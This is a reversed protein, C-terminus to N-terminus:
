AVPARGPARLALQAVLPVGVALVLAAAAFAAGAGARDYLAGGLVTGAAGGLGLTTSTLLAQATAGLGEPALRRALAVGSVWMVAYAPGHALQLAIVLSPAQVLALGLSRVGYLVYAAVFLRQAGFRRVLRGGLAMFPVESVVAVLMAVGVLRRAGLDDLRLPLYTVVMVLGAGGLFATGLLSWMRRDRVLIAAQRGFSAGVVRRGVPVRAACAACAVLLGVYVLFLSRPGERAVLWGVLTASVGWGVTGWLRLRGYDAHRGGLAVLAANDILAPIASVLAGHLLVAALLWPLAPGTAILLAAGAAGLCLSALVARHRHRADALAGWVPTAVISVLLPLGTLLGITGPDHGLSRYYLTLFPLTALAGFALLFATGV